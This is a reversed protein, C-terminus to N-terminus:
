PGKMCWVCLNKDYVEESSSRLKKLVNGPLKQSSTSVQAEEKELKRKRNEAQQIYRNCSIQTYCNSRMYLGKPGKDWEVTAHAHQFKDLEKWRFCKSKLNEWKTDSTNDISNDFTCPQQCLICKLESCSNPVDIDRSEM